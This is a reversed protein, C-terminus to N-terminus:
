VELNGLLVTNHCWGPQEQLCGRHRLLPLHTQEQPIWVGLRIRYTGPAIEPPVDVTRRLFLFGLADPGVSGIPHDGQFCIKGEPNLFHLFVHWDPQIKRCRWQFYFNFKRRDEPEFFFALLTLGGAFEAGFRLLRLEQALRGLWLLNPGGRRLSPTRFGLHAELVHCLESFGAADPQM